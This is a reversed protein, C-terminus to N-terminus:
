LRGLGRYEFGHRQAEDREILARTDIILPNANMASKIMKLDITKYHKHDTLIILVDAGKAAEHIDKIVGSISNVFPDSLIVDSGSSELLNKITLSPAFRTDDTDAKFAVGAIVISKADSRFTKVMDYVHVPMSYNVEKAADVMKLKLGHKELNSKLIFPDKNLCSGGVGPGPILLGANRSYDDKAASIMEIVDVGVKECILALENTIGLFAFRAYNDTMKVMEATEPNSVRVIKGGIANSVVNSYMEFSKDDSAGIINPLTKYDKIAQGEVIREPAFVVGVDEPVKYGKSTIAKVVRDSTTGVPVTSKLVVVDGKKLNNSVIELASDLFFYNVDKKTEDYPTGVTIIKIDSQAIDKPNTTFKLKNSDLAKNLIEDVGPESLVSERANLKKVRTEDVEFGVVDYKEALLGSLPLGVYGLGIISIKLISV